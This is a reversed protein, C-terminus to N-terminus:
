DAESCIAGLVNGFTPAVVVTGGPVAAFDDTGPSWRGAVLEAIEDADSIPPNWAFQGAINLEKTKVSKSAGTPAGTELGIPGPEPMATRALTGDEIDIPRETQTLPGPVREGAM